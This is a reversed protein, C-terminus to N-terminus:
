GSIKCCITHEQSSIPLHYNFYHSIHIYVYKYTWWMSSSPSPLHSSSSWGLLPALEEYCAARRLPPHSAEKEKEKTYKTIYKEVCDTQISSGNYKLGMQPYLVPKLLNLLELVKMEKLVISHM